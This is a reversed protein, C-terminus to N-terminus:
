LAHYTLMFNQYSLEKAARESNYAAIRTNNEINSLTRASRESSEVAIRVLEDCRQNTKVLEKYIDRQKDIIVDLKDSIEELTCQMKDFKIERLVLYYLGDNGGLKTAIGLRLFENMYGVPVLNRYNKDINMKIYFQNLLRQSEQLKFYLSDRQRLLYERQKLERKVRIEDNKLKSNYEECDSEYEKKAKNNGIVKALIGIILGLVVGGVAFYLAMFILSVLAQGIKEFFGDGVVFGHIIGAIAGVIASIIVVIGLIAFVSIDPDKKYPLRFGRKKGLRAIEGNLKEISRTMMYNNVEMDYLISIGQNLLSKAM